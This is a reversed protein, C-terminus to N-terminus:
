RTLAGVGDIDFYYKGDYYCQTRTCIATSYMFPVVYENRATVAVVGCFAAGRRVDAPSRASAYNVRDVHGAGASATAPPLM